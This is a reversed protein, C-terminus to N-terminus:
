LGVFPTALLATVPGAVTIISPIATPIIDVHIGTKVTTTPINRAYPIGPPKVLGEIPSYPIPTAATPINDVRPM